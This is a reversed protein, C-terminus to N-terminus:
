AECCDTGEHTEADFYTARATRKGSVKERATCQWTNDEGRGPGM